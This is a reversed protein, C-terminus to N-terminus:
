MTKKRIQVMLIKGSLKVYKGKFNEPNSFLDSIETEELYVPKESKEQSIETSENSSDSTCAMVSFVMTGVLLLAALKKKM